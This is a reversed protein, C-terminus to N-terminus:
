SYSNDTIRISLKKNVFNLLKEFPDNRYDSRLPINYKSLMIVHRFKNLCALRSAPSIVETLQDLEENKRPTRSNIIVGTASNQDSKISKSGRIKYGFRYLTKQIAKERDKMLSVLLIVGYESVSLFGM